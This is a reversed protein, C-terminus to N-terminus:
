SRSGSRMSTSRTSPTWNSGGRGQNQATLTALAGLALGGALVILSRPSSRTM